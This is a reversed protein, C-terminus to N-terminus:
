SAVSSRRCLPMAMPACPGCWTSCRGVCRGSSVRIAPRWCSRGCGCGGPGIAPLSEEYFQLVQEIRTQRVREAVARAINVMDNGYGRRSFQRVVEQRVRREDIVVQLREAQDLLLEEDILEELVEDELARMEAASRPLEDRMRLLFLRSQLRERVDGRTIIADDVYCVPRDYDQIQAGWLALALVQLLLAPLLRSSRFSPM